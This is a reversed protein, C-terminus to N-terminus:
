MHGDGITSGNGSEGIDSRNHSKMKYDKVFLTAVFLLAACPIVVRFALQLAHVYADIAQGRLPEPLLRIAGANGSTLEAATSSTISLAALNDVLANNFVSGTMAVGIVSFHSPPIILFTTTALPTWASVFATTSFFDSVRGPEGCLEAPDHIDIASQLAIVRTQLCGGLGVGAMLLYGIRMGSNSNYDLTSILGMAMVNIVSGTIMFPRVIGFRSILQGIMGGIFPITELGSVTASDGNVIQFYIPLYYTLTYFIIGLFFGVTVSAYVTRNMFISGSIVPERAIYKEVLVFAVLITGGVCFLAICLASDWTFQTGGGQVPILICVVGALLLPTGIWDIRKLKEKTSGAVPPFKLLFAISTITIAGLPVNINNYHVSHLEYVVDFCECFSWRWSVHDTFAGGVLPGVITSFGFVAGNIGQYKGRDRLSIIDTVIVQLMSIIGGGGIGAIARGVILMDMTMASGCIVTGIEFAIIAFMMVPKRGFIDALKGYTPAISTSSLLYATGVWSIQNLSQFEKVITPLTTVVITQDLAALFLAMELGLYVLWFRTSNLPVAVADPDRGAFKKNHGASPSTVGNELDQSTNLGPAPSVDGKGSPVSKSSPNSPPM